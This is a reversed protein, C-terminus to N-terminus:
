SRCAYIRGGLTLKLGFPPGESGFVLVNPTVTERQATGFYRVFAIYRLM